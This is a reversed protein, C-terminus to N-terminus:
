GARRWGKGISDNLQWGVRPHSRQRGRDYREHQGFPLELQGQGAPNLWMRSGSNAAGYSGAPGM